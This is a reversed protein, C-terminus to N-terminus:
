FFVKNKCKSCYMGNKITKWKEPFIMEDDVSPNYIASSCMCKMNAHYIDEIFKAPDGIFQYISYQSPYKNEEVIFVGDKMADDKLISIFSHGQFQFISYKFDYSLMNPTQETDHMNIEPSDIMQLFDKMNKQSDYDNEEMHSNVFDSFSNQLKESIRTKRAYKSLLEDTEMMPVTVTLTEVFDKM